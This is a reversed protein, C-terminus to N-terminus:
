KTKELLQIRSEHNELKSQHSALERDQNDNREHMRKHSDKNEAKFEAFEDVLQKLTVTLETMARTNDKTSKALPNYIVFFLSALAILVTVVSWETM